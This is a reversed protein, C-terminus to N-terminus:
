LNYKNAVLFLELEEKDDSYYLIQYLQFWQYKVNKGDIVTDYFDSDLPDIPPDDYQIAYQHEGVNIIQGIHNEIYNQSKRLMRINPDCIVYNGVKPQNKTRWGKDRSIVTEFLKIYKM